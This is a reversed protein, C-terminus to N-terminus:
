PALSHKEHCIPVIQVSLKGSGPKDEIILIEGLLGCPAKEPSQAATKELLEADQCFSSLSCAALFSCAPAKGM